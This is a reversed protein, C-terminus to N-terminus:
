GNIRDPYLLQYQKNIREKIQILMREPGTVKLVPGFSLLKILLETEDQLDYWLTATCKGSEDDIVTRKEYSAFEMMFREIGNRERTIELTVPETCRKMKFVRMMDVPDTYYTQTLSIHYIRSLNITVFVIPKIGNMKAVYIRFRDNKQSYELRFPLYDGDILKGKGSKFIIKVICRSHIAKLITKFNQIYDKDTYNDGDSFIDFWKFHEKQYLPKIDSLRDTLEDLTNDEIFLRIRPDQLLAKIWRKELLTLPLTPPNKLASSYHDNNKILLGWGDTRCLKPLLFLSSESFANLNILENIQRESLPSKQLTKSIVSYYCSYIESFLEM